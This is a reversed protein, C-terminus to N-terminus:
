KSVRKLPEDLFRADTIRRIEGCVAGPRLHWDQGPESVSMDWSEVALWGGAAQLFIM